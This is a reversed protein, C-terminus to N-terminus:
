FLWKVLRLKFRYPVYRLPIDFLLTNKVVSKTHSFTDFGAKGHYSGMGSDGVGGFPLLHSAVQVVADNICYGGSSTELRVQEQKRTDRSFLYLSLPKPRANVFSIAEELHTYGLIPLIPGFIEDQMLPDQPSVDEILTPAIYRTEPSTQGGILIKGQSLYSCLRDYHLRNIIRAYDPSGSPDTGFFAIIQKSLVEVFEDKIASDVLLYDPAVCTQGANFFKAWVIRRAAYRLHVDSDVICPSKGGLELTVPTLHRSAAEMVIRGVRTSGTFFISDFREELLERAVDAGGTAVHIYHPDFHDEFLRQLVDSMAPALESPKLVACNGAAMAGVLPSVALQFPYNWPALILVLGYPEALTYCVSPLLPRATMVWAPKTWCSLKRIAYRIENLVLAIEGAYAELRPKAMDAHLSDMILADNERIVRYLRRLQEVRFGTDRTACSGFFARQGDMVDRISAKVM